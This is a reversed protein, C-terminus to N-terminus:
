VGTDVVCNWSTSLVDSLYLGKKDPVNDPLHLLNVDGYPVGAYEAQGGAFGGVFHSYGFMGATRSGYIANELTNSNTKECMSSLKQKCYYCDGCAIRFSAVIRDGKKVRSVAFGIEDVVGCFEYGMIDGKQMEVVTGHM